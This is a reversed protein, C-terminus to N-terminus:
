TTTFHGGGFQIGYMPAASKNVSSLAYRAYMTSVHMMLGCLAAPVAANVISVEPAVDDSMTNLASFVPTPPVVDRVIPAKEPYAATPPADVTDSVDEASLLKASSLRAATDLPVFGATVGEATFRVAVDLLEAEPLEAVTIM